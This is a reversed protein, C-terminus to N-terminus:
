KACPRTVRLSGASGCGQSVTARRSAASRCRASMSIPESVDAGTSRALELASEYCPSEVIVHDGARLLAHYLLFIGEEACSTVIVEEPDIREYLSAIAQRLEPAGESETYSCRTELLRAHAAPEMELLESITRSECDSSSLMYRTAFEYRAYYRELRFPRLEMTDM